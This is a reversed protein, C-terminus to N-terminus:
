YPSVFVSDQDDNYILENLSVFRTISDNVRIANESLTKKRKVFVDMGNNNLFGVQERKCNWITTINLEELKKFSALANDIAKNQEDTLAFPFNQVYNIIRDLEESPLFHEYNEYKDGNWMVDVLLEGNDLQGLGQLSCNDIDYGSDIGNFTFKGDFNVRGGANKVIERLKSIKEKRLDEKLNDLIDIFTNPEFNFLEEGEITESDGSIGDATEKSVIIVVMNNNYVEIAKCIETTAVEGDVYHCFFKDKFEHRTDPILNRIENLIENKIERVKNEYDKREM